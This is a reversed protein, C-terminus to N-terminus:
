DVPKMLNAYPSLLKVVNLGMLAIINENLAKHYEDFTFNWGVYNKSIDLFYITKGKYDAKFIDEYDRYIFCFYKNVDEIETDLITSFEPIISKSKDQQYKNRCLVEISLGSSEKLLKLVRIIETNTSLKAIEKYHKTLIEVMLNDIQDLYENKFIISLPNPEKRYSLLYHRYFPSYKYAEPKIFSSHKSNKLLYKILADEMDFLAHFSCLIFRFNNFRDHLKSVDLM